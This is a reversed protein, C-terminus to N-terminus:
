YIECGGRGANKVRYLAADADKFINGSPNKRDGFAVGVSLSISPLDGGPERLREGASAIKRQVLETMRSDVHKMIVCFEDGGIRAVFDDSRFSGLLVEAVFKLVRDGMDHGFTDNFEKFKDVDIFLVGLYTEECTECFTEFARRNYLGTLADHTASYNLKETHLTNQDHIDNYTQALFIMEASGSVPIKQNNQIHAVGLKLPRIILLQTGLAIVLMMVMLAAILVFQWLRIANLQDSFRIQEEKSEEALSTISNRVNQFIAEKNKVYSQDSMLRVAMDCQQAPTLAADEADLEVARIPEPLVAPDFGYGAAALRMARYEVAMLANSQEMAEDLYRAGEDQVFARIAEEAKERRRTVGTEEFYNFLHEEEGTVAFCLAENTLFDSGEQFSLANGQCAIYREMDSRLRDYDKASQFSAYLLAIFILASVATLITNLAGLRVGSARTRRAIKKITEAM